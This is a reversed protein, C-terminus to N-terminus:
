LFDPTLQGQFHRLRRQRHLRQEQQVLIHLQQPPLSDNLGLALKAGGVGGSIALTKDGASSM